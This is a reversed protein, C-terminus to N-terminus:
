FQSLFGHCRKNGAIEDLIDILIDSRDTHEFFQADIFHSSVKPPNNFFFLRNGSYIQTIDNVHDVMWSPALLSACNPVHNMRSNVTCFYVCLEPTLPILARGDIKMAPIGTTLWDLYGDGCIFEKFPSHLLVFSQLSILGSSCLKKAIQYNQHMNAKGVDESRPLGFQMPFREFRDRFGPSRILLSHILLILDRHFQEELHYFNCGNQISRSKKFFLSFIKTLDFLHSGLPRLTKLTSVITHIKDDIDFDREFNTEWVGKGKRMTHGHRKSGIKRNHFRKKDIKGSPEIWWVDGHKDAWYRQLAVPWWHHNGSNDGGSM